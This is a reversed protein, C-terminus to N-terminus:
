KFSVVATEVFVKWRNQVRPRKSAITHCEHVYVKPHNDLKDTTTDTNFTKLLVKNETWFQATEKEKIVNACM